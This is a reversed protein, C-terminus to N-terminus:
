SRGDKGQLYAAYNRSIPRQGWGRASRELAGMLAEFEAGSMPHTALLLAAAQWVFDHIRNLRRGDPRRRLMSFVEEMEQDTRDGLSQFLTIIHKEIFFFYPVYREPYHDMDAPAPREGRFLQALPPATWEMLKEHDSILLLNRDIIRIGGQNDRLLVLALHAPNLQQAEVAERLPANLEVPFGIPDPKMAAPSFAEPPAAEGRLLSAAAELCVREEDGKQEFLWQLFTRAKATAATEAPALLQERFAGISGRLTHILKLAADQQLDETFAKGGELFAELLLIAQTAMGAPDGAQYAARLLFFRPEILKPDVELAQKYRQSAEAERGCRRLVDGLLLHLSTDQPSKEIRKLLVEEALAPTQLFTDEVVLKYDLTLGPVPQGRGLARLQDLLPAPDVVEWPGPGGCKRCHFYASFSIYDLTPQGQSDMDLSVTGVPYVGPEGCRGCVLELDQSLPSLEDM